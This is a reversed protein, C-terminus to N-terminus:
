KVSATWNLKCTTCNGPNLRMTFTGEANNGDITADLVFEFTVNSSKEKIDGSAKGDVIDFGSDPAYNAFELKGDCYWYGKYTLNNLKKGDPSIDFKIIAGKMGNSYTGEFHKGTSTTAAPQAVQTVISDTKTNSKKEKNSQSCGMLCAIIALLALSTKKM